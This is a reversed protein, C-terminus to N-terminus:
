SMLLDIRISMFVVKMTIEKQEKYSLRKKNM